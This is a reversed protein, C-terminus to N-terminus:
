SNDSPVHPPPETALSFTGVVVTGGGPCSRPRPDLDKDHRSLFARVRKHFRRGEAVLWRQVEALKDLYINDFETRVHIHGPSEGRVLNQEVSQILTEFDAGALRYASVVDGQVVNGGKLLKVGHSVRKVIRKREMETFVAAHGVHSSTSAVLTQFTAGPGQYPIVKPAGAKTRFDVGSEWATVVRAVINLKPEEYATRSKLRRAIEHRYIGTMACLRSVNLKLGSREMEESGVEILVQRLCNEASQIGVGHRICFKAVPRLIFALLREPSENAM